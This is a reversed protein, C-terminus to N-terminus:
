LQLKKLAKEFIVSMYAMDAETPIPPPAPDEEMTLVTHRISKQLFEMRHVNGKRRKFLPINVLNVDQSQPGVPMEDKTAQVKAPKKPVTSERRVLDNKLTATNCGSSTHKVLGSSLNYYHAAKLRGKIPNRGETGDQARAPPQLRSAVALPPTIPRRGTTYISGWRECWCELLAGRNAM